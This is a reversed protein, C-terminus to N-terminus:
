AFLAALERELGADGLARLRKSPGALIQSVLGKTIAEVVDPAIEPHLRHTRAAERQRIREISHHMAGIGSAADEASMALRRELISKLKASLAARRARAHPRGLEVSLLDAITLLRPWAGHEFNRPTGLDLALSRIRPLAAPSLAEAGSGLCGAVIDVGAEAAVKTLSVWKTGPIEHDPRRRGSIIVRDFGLEVGRAAVLRGMAGAGLVLLTGRPEVRAVRLGRDLLHGAHSNFNTERRLERAAAIAAEACRRLEGDADAFAARVQGLIQEEGLVASHLGAAVEALHLVADQGTLHLPAACECPRTGYAEMRQCSEVIAEDQHQARIRARLAEVTDRDM